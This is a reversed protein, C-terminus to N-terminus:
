KKDRYKKFRNNASDPSAKRSEIREALSAAVKELEARAGDQEISERSRPAIMSDVAHFAHILWKKAIQAEELTLDKDDISKEVNIDCLNAISKKVSEFALVAGLNQNSQRALEEAKREISIGVDFLVLDLERDKAQATAIVEKQSQELQTRLSKLTDKKM